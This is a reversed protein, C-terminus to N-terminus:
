QCPVALDLEVTERGSEIVARGAAGHEIASRRPWVEEGFVAASDGVDDVDVVIEVPPTSIVAPQADAQSL